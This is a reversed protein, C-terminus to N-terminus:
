LGIEKIGKQWPLYNVKDTTREHPDLSWCHGISNKMDPLLSRLYRTDHEDTKQASKIEVLVTADGPREIVLDIEGADKTQIYSFRFDRKKYDNLRHVEAVILHEFAQGFAYTSPIISQRLSRELAKKVGTDFFYFKPSQTQRKRVSQHYPELLFGVLTDELIQYYKKVTKENANVDRSTKAYNIIQSNTQAAVELFKRFPDLQHVLHEAWVEEKLYMLGYATLFDEKDETTKLSFIKPLSGFNLIEMLDFHAGLEEFTLPYLHKVFARGALLNAGGHRLKRASSGTLAFHPAPIPLPYSVPASSYPFTTCKRTTM